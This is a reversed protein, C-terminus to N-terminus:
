DISRVAREYFAFRQRIPRRHWRGIQIGEGGSVVMDGQQRGDAINAIGGLRLAATVQTQFPGGGAHQGACALQWVAGRDRDANLGPVRADDQIQWQISAFAAQPAAHGRRRDVGGDDARWCKRATDVPALERGDVRRVAGVWRGEAHGQLGGAMGIFGRGRGQVHEAAGVRRVIGVQLKAFRRDAAHGLRRVEILQEAQVGGTDGDEVCRHIGCAHLQGDVLGGAQERAAEQEGVAKDFARDIVEADDRILFAVAVEQQGSDWGGRGRDKAAFDPQM